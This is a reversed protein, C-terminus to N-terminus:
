NERKVFHDIPRWRGELLYYVDYLYRLDDEDSVKEKVEAIKASCYAIAEGYADFGAAAETADKPWVLYPCESAVGKDGLLGFYIDKVDAIM